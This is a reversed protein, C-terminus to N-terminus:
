IAGLNSLYQLTRYAQNYAATAESFNIIADSEYDAINRRRLLRGLSEGIRIEIWNSSASYIERVSKHPDKDPIQIDKDKLYNRAICYIGYYSRSISTRLHAEQFPDKGRQGDLLEKALEIYLNWDFPM